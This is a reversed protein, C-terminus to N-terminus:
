VNEKDREIIGIREGIDVKTEYGLRSQRLIDDDIKIDKGVVLIITSGGYEFYGKEQFQKFEKIKREVIHGILLAGVDVEILKGLNETDLLSIVRSNKTYVKYKNSIPRVTHLVGKIKYQEIVNGKDIFIFRHYDDAALRFVLVKGFSDLNDVKRKGIIDELKYIGNKIKLSNDIDYVTLRAECPAIVENDKCKRIDKSKIQKRRIFFDNFSNFKTLESENIQINYKNIFPVIDKKSKSSKYYRARLKSFIPREILAKLLVRGLLTHYLFELKEKEYEIEEFYSNSTRDWIKM